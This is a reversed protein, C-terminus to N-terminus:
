YELDRIKQLLEILHHIQTSPNKQGTEKSDQELKNSNTVAKDTLPFFVEFNSENSKSYDECRNDKLKKNLDPLLDDYILYSKTTYGFHILLWLEFCPYSEITRLKTRKGKKPKWSRAKDIAEHFKEHRDRDIVCLAEDYDSSKEECVKIAHEVVSQPASGCDGSVEVKGIIRYKKCINKFYTVSSKSDECVILVKARENREKEEHVRRLEKRKKFLQDSVNTRWLFILHLVM